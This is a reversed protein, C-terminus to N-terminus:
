GLSNVMFFSFALLPIAVLLMILYIVMIIGTFVALKRMNRFGEEFSLQDNYRLSKRIRRSFLFLFYSPLFYFMAGILYLIGIAIFPIPFPSYSEFDQFYGIFSPIFMIPISGLVMFGTFIFGIIAIFSTWKSTTLLHSKVVESVNLSKEVPTESSTAQIEPSVFETEM